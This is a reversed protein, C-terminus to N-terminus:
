TPTGVELTAAEAGMVRWAQVRPSTHLRSCFDSALGYMHLYYDRAFAQGIEFLEAPEDVELGLAGPAEDLWRVQANSRTKLDDDWSALALVELLEQAERVTLDACEVGEFEAGLEGLTVDRLGARDVFAAAFGVIHEHDGNMIHSWTRIFSTAERVTFAPVKLVRGGMLTIEVGDYADFTPSRGM